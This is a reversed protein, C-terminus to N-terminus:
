RYSENKLIFKLGNAVLCASIFDDVPILFEQEELNTDNIIRQENDFGIAMVTNIHNQKWLAM